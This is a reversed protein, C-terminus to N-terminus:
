DNSFLIGGNFERPDQELDGQFAGTHINCLLTIYFPPKLVAGLLSARKGVATLASYFIM